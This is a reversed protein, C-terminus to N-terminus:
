FIVYDLLFGDFFSVQTLIDEISIDFDLGTFSNSFFFGFFFPPFFFMLLSGDSKGM